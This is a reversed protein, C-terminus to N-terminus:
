TPPETPTAGAEHYPPLPRRPERVGGTGAGHDPDLRRKLEAMELVDLRMLADYAAQIREERM